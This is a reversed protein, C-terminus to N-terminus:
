DLAAPAELCVEPPGAGTRDVVVPGAAPSVRHLLWEEIVDLAVQSFSHHTRGPLLCVTVDDTPAEELSRRIAPIHRQYPTLPDEEGMLVLVPSRVQTLVSDPRFSFYDRWWRSSFFRVQGEANLPLSAANRPLGVDSEDILARSRAARLAPSSDSLVIETLRALYEDLDLLAQADYNRERALWRQEIAFSEHGPLGTTSMLVLFVPFPPVIAAVVGAMSEGGQAVLGVVAGDVEPRSRLYETAARVDNSLDQFSAQLFHEPTGMGRRVPYLVAWGLRTLGGVLEDAGALTLLVVGPSPVEGAPVVLTGSLITGDVPNQYTVREGPTPPVLSQASSPGPLAAVVAALALFRLISRM